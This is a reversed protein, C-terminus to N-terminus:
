FFSASRLSPSFPLHLSLFLPLNLNVCVCVCVCQARIEEEGLSM